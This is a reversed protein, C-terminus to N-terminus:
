HHHGVSGILHDLAHHDHMENGGGDSGTFADHGGDGHDSGSGGHIMDHGGDRMADSRESSADVHAHETGTADDASGITVHFPDSRAMDGDGDTATVTYSLVPDHGTETQDVTISKIQYSTDKDESGFVIKDFGGTYYDHPNFDVQGGAVGDISGKYVEVGNLYLTYQATEQISGIVPDSIVGLGTLTFHVSEVTQAHGNDDQFQMTLTDNPNIYQDNAAGNNVGLGNDNWQLNAEHGDSTGTVHVQLDDTLNVDVSAHNQDGGPMDSSFVTTAQTPQLPDLTYDGMTVTYSPEGQDNLSVSFVTHTGSDDTFVAHVGGNGDDQYYLSHGGSTLAHGHDDVVTQGILSNGNSDGLQLALDHAPGDAGFNVDLEGTVHSGAENGLVTDSVHGTSPGDDEIKFVGAAGLDISASATDGDGDTVTQTLLLVGDGLQLTVSEDYSNFGGIPHQIGGHLLDFQVEGTEHNIDLTFYNVNNASGTIVGTVPDQSLLIKYGGDAYLGSDVGDGNLTLNFSRGALGDAGPVVTFQAQVDEATLVASHVGANPDVLTPPGPSEDVVAAGLTLATKGEISPGDDLVEVVLHGDGPAVNGNSDIVKFSFNDDVIDNLGTEGKKDHDTTNGNLEYTWNGDKDITLDGYKGDIVLPKDTSEPGITITKGDGFDLTVTGDSGLHVGLDELNGGKTTDGQGAKSGDPLYAEDVILVKALGISPPEYPPPIPPQDTGPNDQPRGGPPPDLFNRGIGTTEAGSDPLVEMHDSDFVVIHRGGGGAGAVGAVGPGAAPSPLDTTPDITGDLLAAQIDQVAAVTDTSGARGGGYVDDDLLVDSMRGLDLHGHHDALAISISGDPGTVVREHAYVPSNPTLMREVGAPSVAKVTGYVIFAKGISQTNAPAM